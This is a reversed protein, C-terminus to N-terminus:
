RPASAWACQGARGLDIGDVMLADRLAASAQHEQWLARLKCQFLDVLGDLGIMGESEDVAQQVAASQTLELACGGNADRWRVLEICAMYHLYCGVVVFVHFIQHSHLVLDFRGPYWKEPVRLSFIVAAGLYSVGMLIDLIMANWVPEIHKYAFFVHSWPFVGCLGLVAFCLARTPRWHANQFRNLTSLLLTAVGLVTISALYIVCPIPTCMFVYYVLPYFSSVINATIGACRVANDAGIDDLSVIPQLQRM